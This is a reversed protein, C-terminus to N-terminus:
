TPDTERLKRVFSTSRDIQYYVRNCFPSAIPQMGDVFARTLIPDMRYYRSSFTWCIDPSGIRM